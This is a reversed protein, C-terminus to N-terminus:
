TNANSLISLTLTDYDFSFMNIKSNTSNLVESGISFAVKNVAGAGGVEMFDNLNIEFPLQAKDRVAAVKSTGKDTFSFNNMDACFNPCSKM